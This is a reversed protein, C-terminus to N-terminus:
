LLVAECLHIQGLFQQRKQYLESIIIHWINGKYLYKDYSM